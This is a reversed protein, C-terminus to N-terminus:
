LVLSVPVTARSSPSRYAGLMVEFGVVWRSEIQARCSYKTIDELAEISAPM